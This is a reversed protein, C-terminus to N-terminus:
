SVCFLRWFIFDLVLGPAFLQLSSSGRGNLTSRRHIDWFTPEHYDCSLRRIVPIGVLASPSSSMSGPRRPQEVYWSLPFSERYTSPRTAQARSSFTRELTTYLSSSMILEPPSRCKRLDSPFAPLSFRAEVIFIGWGIYHQASRRRSM